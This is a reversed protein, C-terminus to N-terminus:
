CAGITNCILNMIGFASVTVFLGIIGWLMHRKGDGIKDESGQTHAWIFEVVGAIFVVVALAILLLILPNVINQTIKGL